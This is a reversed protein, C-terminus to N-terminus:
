RHVEWSGEFTVEEQARHGSTIWFDFLQPLFKFSAPSCLDSRLFFLGLWLM